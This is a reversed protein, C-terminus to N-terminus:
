RPRHRTLYKELDDESVRIARGFRLCALEERRIARRLTSGSLGTLEELQWITYLRRVTGSSPGPTAISMSTRERRVLCATPSSVARKKPPRSRPVRCCDAGSVPNRRRTREGQRGAAQGNELPSPRRRRGATRRVGAVDNTRFLPHKAHGRRRKYPAHELRARRVPVRTLDHWPYRRGM